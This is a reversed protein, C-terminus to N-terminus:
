ARRRRRTVLPAVVGLVGVLSGEAPGGGVSCGGNDGAGAPQDIAPAVDVVVHVEPGFWAIGEEVAQFAEDLQTERDVAPAVIDFTFTGTGGPAVPAAIAAARNPAIWAGDVFLASDRDQPEATGLRTADLDWTANGRNQLTVTVTAREGSTLRAPQVDVEAGDAALTPAGGTNVLDLYHVWDWGPGPDTHDSCDPADGHGVIPGQVKPIAYKDALYATLTASAVYMPETYWQEPHAMFGEHEIGVTNANFCKDHWAIDKEHVMQVVHGDTSRTVYHASVQASPDQFWALTGSFNGETDHIVIHDIDGAGRAATDFNGSDAATWEAGSYDATATRVAAVQRPTVFLQAGLVVRGGDFGRADVGRHIAASVESATNRDLVDLYADLTQAGRAAERYLAAAARVSALADRTAAAGPVGALSAGRVLERDPLGFLGRATGAHAPDAVDVLQWRTRVYSLGALFEAPVGTEASVQVFVQALQSTGGVAVPATEVPDRAIACGALACALGLALERTRLRM